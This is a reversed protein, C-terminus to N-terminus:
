FPTQNTTSPKALRFSKEQRELTVPGLPLYQMPDDGLAILQTAVPSRLSFSAVYLQQNPQQYLRLYIYWKPGEGFRSKVVEHFEIQEIVFDIGLLNVVPIFPTLGGGMDHIDAESAPTLDFAHLDSRTENATQKTSMNELEQALSTFFRTMSEIDYSADYASDSM